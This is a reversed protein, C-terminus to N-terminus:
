RWRECVIQGRVIQGDADEPLSRYHQPEEHHAYFLSPLLVDAWCGLSSGSSTIWQRTTNLPRALERITPQEGPFLRTLNIARARFVTGFKSRELFGADGPLRAAKRGGLGRLVPSSLKGEDPELV